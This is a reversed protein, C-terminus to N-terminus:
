LSTLDWHPNIPVTCLLARDQCLCWLYEPPEGAVETWPVLIQLNTEWCPQPSHHLQRVPVCISGLAGPGGGSERPGRVLPELVHDPLLSWSLCPGTLVVVAEPDLLEEVWCQLHGVAREGNRAQSHGPSRRITRCDSSKV